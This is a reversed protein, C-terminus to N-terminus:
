KYCQILIEQLIPEGFEVVFQEDEMNMLYEGIKYHAICSRIRYIIYMVFKSIFKNYQEINNVSQIEKCNDFSFGGVKSTIKNFQNYDKLPNSEKGFDYLIKKAVPLHDKISNLKTVIRDIDSCYKNFIHILRELDERSQHWLLKGIKSVDESRSLDLNKIEVVLDYDFNVELLHYLKLYREFGYLQSVSRTAPDLHFEKFKNLDKAVVFRRIYKHSDKIPLLNYQSEHVFGGWLASSFIYKNLYIEFYIYDLVVYDWKFIYTQNIVDEPLDSDALLAVFQYESCSAIEIPTNKLILLVGMEYNNDDYLIITKGQTFGSSSLSVRIAVKDNIVIHKRDLIPLSINYPM